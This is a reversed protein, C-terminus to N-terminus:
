NLIIEDFKIVDASEIELFELTEMPIFVSAVRDVWYLAPPFLFLSTKQLIPIHM